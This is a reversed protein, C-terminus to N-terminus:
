KAVAAVCYGADQAWVHERQRNLNIALRFASPWLTQIHPNKFGM